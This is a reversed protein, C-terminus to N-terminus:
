KSYGFSCLYNRTIMTSVAVLVWILFFLVLCFRMKARVALVVLVHKVPILRIACIHALIIEYLITISHYM